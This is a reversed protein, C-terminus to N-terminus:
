LPLLKHSMPETEDLPNERMQIEAEDTWKQMYKLIEQIKFLEENTARLIELTDKHRDKSLTGMDGSEEVYSDQPEGQSWGSSSFRTLFYLKPRLEKGLKTLWQTDILSGNEDKKREAILAIGAVEDQKALELLEKRQFKVMEEHLTAIQHKMDQLKKEMKQIVNKQSRPSEWVWKELDDFGCLMSAVVSDPSDDGSVLGTPATAMATDWEDVSACKPAAPQTTQKKRVSHVIAQFKYKPNEKNYSDRIDYLRQTLPDVKEPQATSGFLSSGAGFGGFGSM